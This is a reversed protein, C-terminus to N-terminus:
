RLPARLRQAASSACRERAARYEPSVDAPSPSFDSAVRRRLRRAADGAAASPWRSTDEAPEARVPQPMRHAAQKRDAREPASPTRRRRVADRSPQQSPRSPRRHRLRCCASHCPRTQPTPPTAQPPPRNLPRPQAPPPHHRRRSWTRGAPRGARDIVGRHDDETPMRRVTPRCGGRFHGAGDACAVACRWAGVGHPPSMHESRTIPTASAAHAVIVGTRLQPRAAASNIPESKYVGVHRHARALRQRRVGQRPVLRGLLLPNRGDGRARAQGGGRRGTPRRRTCAPRRRGPHHLQAQRDAPESPGLRQRGALRPNQALERVRRRDRGAHSKRKFVWDVPYRTGPGTRVNVEDSRLSAFRPIPLGSGKASPPRRRTPPTRAATLAPCAAFRRWFPSAGGLALRVLRIGM